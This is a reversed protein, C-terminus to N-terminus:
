ATPRPALATLQQSFSTNIETLKARVADLNQQSGYPNPTVGPVVQAMQLLENGAATQALGFVEAASQQARANLVGSDLRAKINKETEAKQPGAELKSLMFQSAEQLKATVTRRAGNLQRERTRVVDYRDRLAKVTPNLANGGDATLLAFQEAPTKGTFAPQTQMWNWNDSVVLMIDAPSTQNNEIKQAKIMAEALKVQMSPNTMRVRSAMLALTTSKNELYAKLKNANPSDTVDRDGEKIESGDVKVKYTKAGDKMTVYGQAANADNNELQIDGLSEKNGAAPPAEITQENAPVAQTQEQTASTASEPAAVTGGKLITLLVKFWKMMGKIRKGIPANEDLDDSMGEMSGSMLAVKTGWQELKGREPKLHSGLSMKLQESVVLQQNNELATAIKLILANKVNQPINANPANLDEVIEMITQQQQWIANGQKEFEEQLKPIDFNEISDRYQKIAEQSAAPAAAPANSTNWVQRKTLSVISEFPSVHRMM